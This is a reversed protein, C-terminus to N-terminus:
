EKGGGMSGESRVKKIEESSEGGLREIKNSRKGKTGGSGRGRGKREGHGEL